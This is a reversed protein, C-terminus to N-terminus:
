LAWTQEEWFQIYLKEICFFVFLQWILHPPTVLFVCKPRDNYRVQTQWVAPVSRTAERHGDYFGRVQDEGSRTVEGTVPDKTEEDDIRLVFSAVNDLYPEKFMTHGVEYRVSGDAQKIRVMEVLIGDRVIKTGLIPDKVFFRGDLSKQYDKTFKFFFSRVLFGRQPDVIQLRVYATDKPYKGDFYYRAWGERTVIDDHHYLKTDMMKTFQPDEFSDWKAQMGVLKYRKVFGPRFRVGLKRPFSLSALDTAQSPRGSTLTSITPDTFFSM